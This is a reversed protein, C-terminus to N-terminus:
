ATSKKNAQQYINEIIKQLLKMGGGIIITNIAGLILVGLLTLTIQLTIWLILYSICQSAFSLLTMLWFIKILQQNISADSTLDPAEPAQSVSNTANKIKENIEESMKFEELKNKLREIEINMNTVLTEIKNVRGTKMISETTNNQEAM